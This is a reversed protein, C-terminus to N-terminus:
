SGTRTIIEVPFREKLRDIAAQRHKESKMRECMKDKITELSLGHYRPHSRYFAMIEDKSLEVEPEEEVLVPTLLSVIIRKEPPAAWLPGDEPFNVGAKEAEQVLRYDKVLDFLERAFEEGGGGLTSELEPVESVVISEGNVTLKLGDLKGGEPLNKEVGALLMEAERRGAKVGKLGDELSFDRLSRAIRDTPVPKGEVEVAASRFLGALEKQYARLPPHAALLERLHNKLEGDSIEPPFNERCKSLLEEVERPSPGANEGARSFERLAIGEIVGASAAVEKRRREREARGLRARFEETRDIGRRLGERYILENEVARKLLKEDFPPIATTDRSVYFAEWVNKKKIEKGGVKAVTEEAMEMFEEWAVPRRDLFDEETLEELVRDGEAPPPSVPGEQALGLTMLLIWCLAGSIVPRVLAIFKKM